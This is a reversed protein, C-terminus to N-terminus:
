IRNRYCEQPVQRPPLPHLHPDGKHSGGASNLSGPKGPIPGCTAAPIIGAEEEILGVVEMTATTCPPAVAPPLMASSHLGDRTQCVAVNNGKEAGGGSCCTISSKGMTVRTDERGDPGSMNLTGSGQVRLLGM